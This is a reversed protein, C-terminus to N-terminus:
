NGRPRGRRLRQVNAPQSQYLQAAEKLTRITKRGIKMPVPFERNLNLAIKRGMAKRISIGAQIDCRRGHPYLM